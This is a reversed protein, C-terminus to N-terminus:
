SLNQKIKEASDLSVRMGIALDNTINRAGIPIVASHALSGEVFIAISTSGGGLDILIVGLERETESLVAEASALGSFVLGQVNIGIEGVCKTLNRMATTAGTILHAEAELRVGTM